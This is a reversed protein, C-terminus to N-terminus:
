IRPFGCRGNTNAPSGDKSPKKPPAFDMWLRVQETAGIRKGVKKRPLAAGSFHDLGWCLTGIRKNGPDTFGSSPETPIRAKPPAWNWGIFSYAKRQFIMPDVNCWNPQPIM